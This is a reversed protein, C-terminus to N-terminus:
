VQAMVRRSPDVRRGACDAKQNEVRVRLGRVILDVV